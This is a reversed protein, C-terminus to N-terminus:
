ALPELKFLRDSNRHLIAARLEEDVAPTALMWDTGDKAQSYPYDTAFLIRDPPTLELVAKLPADSFFAATTIYFNQRYTDALHESMEPSARRLVKVARDLFFPVGEGGHGLILQLRPFRQFVGGLVMRMAHMGTEFHWGMMGTSLMIGYPAPLNSYYADMVPKPAYTPHLYIPADLAEAAELMPWFFQDDLFRGQTHGHIMAGRFGLDGMCRELERAAGEPDPTALTALGAFRDPYVSVAAALGDNVRASVELADAPPMWHVHPAASSLVQVDIGAEDMIAIRGAGLDGLSEGLAKSFLKEPGDLVAELEPTRFHEEVAVIRPRPANQNSPNTMTM